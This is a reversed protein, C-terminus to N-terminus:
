PYVINESNDYIMFADGWQASNALDWADEAKEKLRIGWLGGFILYGIGSGSDSIKQAYAPTFTGGAQVGTAWALIEKQKITTRIAQIPRADGLEEFVFLGSKKCNPNAEVEIHM